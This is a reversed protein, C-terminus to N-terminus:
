KALYLVGAEDLDEEWSGDHHVEIMEALKPYGLERLSCAAVSEHRKSNRCLDHLLAGAHILEQDLKRGAAVLEATLEAAARAVAQSHQRVGQPTQFRDWLEAIQEDTPIVSVATESQQKREYLRAQEFDEPTNLNFFVGKDDVELDITPDDLSLLAGKLGQDGTYAILRDVHKKALLVPHGGKGQYVPRAVGAQLKKLAELSEPKVLPMDGPTIFVADYDEAM